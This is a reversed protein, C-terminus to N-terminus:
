FLRDLQRETEQRPRGSIQEWVSIRIDLGLAAFYSYFVSVYFGEYQSITNGTYWHHPISAYFSQFLARLGSIDGARLLHYLRRVHRAPISPGGCLVGLLCDNLGAQVELNPYRLSLEMRGPIFEASDVTLYGTQFLLAEVPINGVDFTSLLSEPAVIRGLDPTFQRQEMLLKILFTPTGTEFWYPRFQRNSFL